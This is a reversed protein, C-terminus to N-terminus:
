PTNLVQINNMLLFNGGPSKELIGVAQPRNASFQKYWLLAGTTPDYRFVLSKRLAPSAGQNGCLVLMGDSDEIIEVLEVPENPNLPQFRCYGNQCPLHCCFLPSIRRKKNPAALM